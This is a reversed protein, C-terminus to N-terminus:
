YSVWRCPTLWVCIEQQTAQRSQGLYEQQKEARDLVTRLAWAEVFKGM